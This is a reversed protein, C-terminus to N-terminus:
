KFIRVTMERPRVLPLVLFGIKFVELDTKIIINDINLSKCAKVFWTKNLYSEHNKGKALGSFRHPCTLEVKKKCVRILEKLFRFPTKTHEIVHRSVVKDFCLDKFPLFNGDAIVDASTKIRLNRNKNEYETTVDINIDGSPDAGCGVDLIM